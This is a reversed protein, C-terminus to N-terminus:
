YMRHLVGSELYTNLIDPVPARVTIVGENSFLFKNELHKTITVQLTFEISDIRATERASDSFSFTTLYRVSRVDYKLTAEGLLGPHVAWEQWANYVFMATQSSTQPYAEYSNLSWFGVLFALALITSILLLLGIKLVRKVTYNM